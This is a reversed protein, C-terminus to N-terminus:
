GEDRQQKAFFRSVHNVIRLTALTALIAGLLFAGAINVNEWEVAFVSRGKDDNDSKYAPVFSSLSTVDTVPELQV